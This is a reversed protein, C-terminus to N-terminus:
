RRNVLKERTSSSPSQRKDPPLDTANLLHDSNPTLSMRIYPPKPAESGPNRSPAGADETLIYTAGGLYSDAQASSGSKWVRGKHIQRVYNCTSNNATSNNNAISNNNIIM